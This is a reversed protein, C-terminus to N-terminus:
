SKKDYSGNKMLEATGTKGGIDYGDIRIRPGTYKTEEVVSKLLYSIYNSTDEDIVRTFNEKNLDLTINPKHKKGNNLISAYAVALHMPTISFAYGYGITMTEMKGWNNPQGYPKAAELLNINVPDFFGIKKFFEIQNKKGIIEAIKATGINSSKVVIEKVSLSCDCPDWDSIHKIPKSVDFRMDKKILNKDIGMAVTIPKFTSGMEYNSQLARNLREDSNSKNINNPDFDPYNNLSLIESNKIDMVIATGSEASFQDITKILENRIANQLNIDITLYVDEGSKLRKYFGAEVGAIGKNDVDVYGVIHSSINQYPYIRNKKIETQLNIEGLKIIKQQERPSINRKLYVFRKNSTLKEYIIKEDINIIKSLNRSLEKKNKINKSNVHLSPNNINTSLLQGNRDYIKGRDPQYNSINSKNQNLDFLMVNAIRYIGVLYFCSFVIISFFIRKHFNKLADSDFIRLNKSKIVM